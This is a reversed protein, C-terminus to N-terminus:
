PSAEDFLDVCAEPWRQAGVWETFEYRAFARPCDCIVLLPELGEKGAGAHERLELLHLKEGGPQLGGGAEVDLDV